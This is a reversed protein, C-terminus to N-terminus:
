RHLDRNILWAFCTPGSALWAVFAASLTLELM